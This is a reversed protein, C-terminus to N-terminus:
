GQLFGVVERLFLDPATNMAAHGQGPMVCLRADPLDAALLECPRKLFAPSREGQLLLTPVTLSQFRKPDYVYDGDALERVATHAAAVRGQWSPDARLAALDEDSAKVVDRFFEVLLSESDTETLLKEFRERTGPEYIEVGPVAFAPEYLILRRLNAADKAAELSCLAGFSHGLLSVETGAAEVVALVDAYEAELSYTEGDGSKGRGRRDMAVVTFHEELAPQIGAWRTHDATSGHVLVLPPGDGTISYAIQTGDASRVTEM